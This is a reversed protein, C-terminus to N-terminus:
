LKSLIINKDNKIIAKRVEELVFSVVYNVMQPYVVFGHLLRRENTVFITKPLLNARKAKIIDNMHSLPAWHDNPCYLIAIPCSEGIIRLASYDHCEPIDRIEELGLELFNQAYQVQSYLERALVRDKELTIGAVKELYIDVDLTETNSL